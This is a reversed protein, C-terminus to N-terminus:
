KKRVEETLQKVQEILTRQEAAVNDAKKAVAEIRQTDTTTTDTKAAPQNPSPQAPQAEVTQVPPEPKPRPTIIVAGAIGVALAVVATIELVPSGMTKRKGKAM